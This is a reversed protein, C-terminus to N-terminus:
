DGRVCAGHVLYNTGKPSQHERWREFLARLEENFQRAAASSLRLRLWLESADHRTDDLILRMRPGDENWLLMGKPNCKMQLAERLQHALQEGPLTQCWAAPTFYSHATARYLRIARGARPSHGVIRVLGTAVLRRLHHSLLSYSMSSHAVLDTMTCDKEILLALLVQLRPRALLAAAAADQVVLRERM